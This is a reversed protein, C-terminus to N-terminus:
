DLEGSLMKERFAMMEDIAEDYAERAAQNRAIAASNTIREGNIAPPDRSQFWYQRAEAVKAEQRRVEAHQEEKTMAVEENNSGALGAYRRGGPERVRYVGM